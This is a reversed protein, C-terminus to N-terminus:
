STGFDAWFGSAWRASYWHFEWESQGLVAGNAAAIWAEFERAVVAAVRDDGERGAIEGDPRNVVLPLREPNVIGFRKAERFTQKLSVEANRSGTELYAIEYMESEEVAGGVGGRGRSRFQHRNRAHAPIIERHRSNRRLNERHRRRHARYNRRHQKRHFFPPQIIPSYIQICVNLQTPIFRSTTHTFLSTSITSKFPFRPQLNLAKIQSVM